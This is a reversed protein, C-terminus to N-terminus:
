TTQRLRNAWNRSLYWCILTPVLCILIYILTGFDFFEGPGRGKLPMISFTFLIGVAVGVLGVWLLEPKAKKIQFIRTALAVLLAPILGLAYSLPLGIMLTDLIVETRISGSLIAGTALLVLFGLPPGLLAFIVWHGMAYSKQESSPSAGLRWSLLWCVLTPVLCTPVYVLFAEKPTEFVSRGSLLLAELVAGFAVVFIFGVVTGILTVWLWEPRFQRIQVQRVAGGSVLAPLLGFVYAFPTLWATGSIMDALKGDFPNGDGIAIAAFVTVLGIPPGLGAFILWKAM